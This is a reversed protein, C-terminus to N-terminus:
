FVEEITLARGARNIKDGKALGELALYIPSQTSIGMYETGECTFRTTPVAVVFHRGDLVVVAGPRVTDAPSFDLGEIADFRAQHTQVPGDFAAALDANERSEAIDSNDHGERGGLAADDLFARYHEQATALEAEELALLSARIAQKTAARDKSNSM